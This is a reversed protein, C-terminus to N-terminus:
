GQNRIIAIIGSVVPDRGAFYDKSSLPIPIEPAIWMRGDTFDTNQNWRSSIIARTGSYPLTVPTSEGIFNPRSGTPEGVFIVQPIYHEVTAAFNQAASFTLRGTIVYLRRSPNDHVFQALAVIMPPFLATEGGTNQRIDLILNRTGNRRASGLISDGMQSMSLKEDEAIAGLRVYLASDEILPYVSFLSTDRLYLPVRSIDIDRPAPLPHVRTARRHATLTAEKTAGDRTRFTFRASSTDATIGISHLIQPANLLRPGHTLIGTDNDRQILPITRTIAEKATVDGIKEVKA